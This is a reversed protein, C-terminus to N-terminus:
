IYGLPSPLFHGFIRGTVPPPRFSLCVAAAAGLAASGTAGAASETAAAAAPGATKAGPEAEAKALSLAAKQQAALFVAPAGLHEWPVIRWRILPLGDLPAGCGPEWPVREAFSSVEVGLLPAFTCWWLPDQFSTEGSKTRLFPTCMIQSAVERCEPDMM